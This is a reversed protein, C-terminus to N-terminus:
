NDAVSFRRRDLVRAALRMSNTHSREGFNELDARSLRGRLEDLLDVPVPDATVRAPVFTRNGFARDTDAFNAVHAVAHQVHRPAVDATDLAIRDLIFGEEVRM